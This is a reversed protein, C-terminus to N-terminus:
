NRKQWFLLRKTIEIAAEWIDNADTKVKGNDTSIPTRSNTPVSEIARKLEDKKESEDGM